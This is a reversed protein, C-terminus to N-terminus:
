HIILAKKDFKIARHVKTPVLGHYLVEKFNTIHIIYIKESAFPSCNEIKM